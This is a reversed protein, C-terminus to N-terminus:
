AGYEAQAQTEQSIWVVIQEGEWSGKMSCVRARLPVVEKSDWQVTFDERM